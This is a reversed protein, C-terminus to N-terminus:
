AFLVGHIEAFSEEVVVDASARLLAEGAQYTKEIVGCVQFGAQKATNAAYPADEFVMCQAPALNGLRKAAELYIDPNYKSVGVDEITLVFDFYSLLGHDELAKEAFRHDTLTAVACRVGHAHLTQLFPEIGAKHLSISEYRKAILIKMDEMMAETTVPLQPYTRAFYQAVEHQTCGEIADYDEKTIAINHQSLYNKSLGEWVPMSDLVTGDMDFIAGKIM